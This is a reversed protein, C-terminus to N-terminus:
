LIKLNRTAARVRWFEPFEPWDNAPKEHIGPRFGEFRESERSAATAAPEAGM